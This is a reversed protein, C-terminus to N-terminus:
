YRRDIWGRVYDFFNKVTNSYQGPTTECPVCPTQNHNAGDVIIFDKDTSKALEFYNEIFRLYNNGGMSAMLIPASIAQVACPVSNNTSCWEVDDMAHRSRVAYASLFSRLTLLLTGQAFTRNQAAQEPQAVRVSEGVQRVLSGDNKLVKQPRLTTHHIRPDLLMLEATDVRSLLFVDDDTFRGRGAEIEKLRTQALTILRNVRASQAAFYKAAFADSYHSAGKPNYGNAPNFPDLAPDIQAREGRELMAADNTVAGNLRRLASAANGPNSDVLIIGDARPLGALEEGCRVLKAVGNCYGTGGEAVAQYFSTTAGGGSFGYLLVKTIGPQARLFTMGTKVDLANTEWRVLAENNDSRPNMCLVLYGRGSLEGCGHYGLFNSTRHLVLIGVHPAPGSDPAYLAGKVATPQFQVYRPNSQARAPAAAVALVALALVCSALRKM